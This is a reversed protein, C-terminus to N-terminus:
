FMRFWMIFVDFVKGVGKVSSRIEEERTIITSRNKIISTVFINKDKNMNFGGLFILINNIVFIIKKFVESNYKGM